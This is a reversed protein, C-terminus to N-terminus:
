QKYTDNGMKKKITKGSKEKQQRFSHSKLKTSKKKKFQIKRNLTKKKGQKNKEKPKSQYEQELKKLSINFRDVKDVKGDTNLFTFFTGRQIQIEQVKIHLINIIM